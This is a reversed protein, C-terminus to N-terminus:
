TFSSGAFMKPINFLVLVLSESATLWQYRDQNTLVPDSHPSIKLVM